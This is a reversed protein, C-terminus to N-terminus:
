KANFFNVPNSKHLCVCDTAVSVWLIKKIWLFYCQLGVRSRGCKSVSAKTSREKELLNQVSYFVYIYFMFYAYVEDVTYHLLYYCYYHLLYTVCFDWGLYTTITISRSARCYPLWTRYFFSTCILTNLLKPNCYKLVVLFGNFSCTRLKINILLAASLLLRFTGWTEDSSFKTM